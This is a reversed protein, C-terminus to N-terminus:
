HPRELASRIVRSSISRAFSSRSAEIPGSWHLASSWWGGAPGTHPRCAEIPGSWHLASSRTMQHGGGQSVAGAEIPGSWHLASSSTEPPTTSASPCAEIPGSWHLASSAGAGM